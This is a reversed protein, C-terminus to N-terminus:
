KFRGSGSADMKGGVTTEKACVACVRVWVCVRM